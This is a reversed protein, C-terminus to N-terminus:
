YAADLVFASLAGKGVSLAQAQANLEAFLDEKTGKFICDTNGEWRECRFWGVLYIGCAGDALTLYRESLQSQMATLLEKNWCGKSEIIVAASHGEPDKAEIKLDTREGIGHEKLNRIQVERDIVFAPLDSELHHKIFDSLRDESKPRGLKGNDSLDWLFPALPTQGHLKKQLNQLSVLVAGMLEISSRALRADEHHTYIILEAPALPRLTAKRFAQKAESHLHKLWDREPFRDSISHL